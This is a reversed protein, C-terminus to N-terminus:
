EALLGELFALLLDAQHDSLGAVKDVITSRIVDPAKEIESRNVEPNETRGLLFDVSVNLFDAIKVLNEISPKKKGSYYENM